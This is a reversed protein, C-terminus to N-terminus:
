ATKNGTDDPNDGVNDLHQPTTGFIATEPTSIATQTVREHPRHSKLGEARSERVGSEDSPFSLRIEIGPAISPAISRADFEAMRIANVSHREDGLRRALYFTQRPQAAQELM